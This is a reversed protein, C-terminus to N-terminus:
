RGVVGPQRASRALAPQAVDDGARGAALVGALRGLALDFYSAGRTAEVAEADAIAGDLEGAVARVLARAALGFPFDDIAVREIAAM